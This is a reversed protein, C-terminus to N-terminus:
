TERFTQRCIRSRADSRTGGRRRRCSLAWCGNMGRSHGTKGRQFGRRKFMCFRAAFRGNPKRRRCVKEGFRCTQGGRLSRRNALRRLSHAIRQRWSSRASAFTTQRFGHRLGGFTTGTQFRVSTVWDWDTGGSTHM